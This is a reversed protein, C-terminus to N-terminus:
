NIIIAEHSGCEREIVIDQFLHLLEGFAPLHAQAAGSRFQNAASDRAWQLSVDCIAKM